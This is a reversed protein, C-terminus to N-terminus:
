EEGAVHVVYKRGAGQGAALIDHLRPVADLGNEVVISPRITGASLRLLTREIAGRVADPRAISLGTLSFGGLLINRAMLTAVPPLPGLAGGAANGFLVVRGGADLMEIDHELWRTGQSDLIATVGRGGLATRVDDAVSPGRVLAVDYGIEEARAARQASGVLAVLTVGEVEGALQAVAEGVAGAASHVAIIDGPRVRAVELVLDATALAGPAAAAEHLTVGEPVVCALSARALAYEAAGGHNTLAAVRDGIHLTEVDPGIGVVTGSVEMGPVAPWSGAYGPDGRRLMVDKFNVGAYAVEILVEGSGVRPVDLRSPHTRSADPAPGDLVVASM